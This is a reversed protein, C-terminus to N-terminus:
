SVGILSVPQLLFFSFDFRPWRSRNIGIGKRGWAPLIGITMIYIRPTGDHEERRSTMGCFLEPGIWALRTLKSSKITLNRYFNEDYAVPFLQLNLERFRPVDDKTCPRLEPM